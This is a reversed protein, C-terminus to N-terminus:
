KPSPQKTLAMRLLEEIISSRSRNTIKALKQVQKMVRFDVTATLKGKTKGTAPRGVKKKTETSMHDTQKRPPILNWEM